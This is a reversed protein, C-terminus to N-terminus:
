LIWTLKYNKIIRVYHPVHMVILLYMSAMHQILYNTDTDTPINYLKSALDTFYKASESITTINRSGISSSSLLIDNFPTIWKESIGELGLMMGMISGVNGLNCDTDRGAEAILRM